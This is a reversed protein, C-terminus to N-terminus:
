PLLFHMKRHTTSTSHLYPPVYFLDRIDLSQRKRPAELGPRPSRHYVAKVDLIAKVQKALLEWMDRDDYIVPIEKESERDKLFDLDQALRFGPEMRAGSQRLRFPSFVRAIISAM